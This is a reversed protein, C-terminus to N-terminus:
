QNFYNSLRYHLNERVNLWFLNYDASHYSDMKFLKMWPIDIQKLQLSGRDSKVSIKNPKKLKFNGVPLKMVQYKFMQVINPMLIGKHSSLDTTEMTQDFTVRNSAVITQYYENDYPNINDGFTNWSLFCKMQNPDKCPPLTSFNDAVPVGVLYALLLKDKLDKNPLIIDKLLRSAHM